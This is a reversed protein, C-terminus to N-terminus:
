VNVKYEIKNEDLYQIASQSYADAHITLKKTLKGALIKVGGLVKRPILRKERLTEYNVTEGDKYKKDLLCLPISVTEKLFSGRTFGRVPLKRYLPVQGGEYGHRRQYGQRSGDGKSGRGSTKGRKSGPGRGLRRFKKKPRSIDVLNSLNFM